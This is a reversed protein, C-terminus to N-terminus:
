HVGYKKFQNISRNMNMSWLESHTSLIKLSKTIKLPNQHTQRSDISCSNQPSTAVWEPNESAIKGHISVFSADGCKPCILHRYHTQSPFFIFLFLVSANAAAVVVVVFAPLRPAAAAAACSSSFFAFVCFDISAYDFCAFKHWLCVSAIWKKNRRTKRKWQPISFFRKFQKAHQNCLWLWVNANTMAIIFPIVSVCMSISTTSLLKISYWNFWMSHKDNVTHARSHPTIAAATTTITTARTMTTTIWWYTLYTPGDDTLYLPTEEIQKRELPRVSLSSFGNGYCSFHTNTVLLDLYISNALAFHYLQNGCFFELRDM